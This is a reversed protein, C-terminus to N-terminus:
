FIEWDELNATEWEAQLYQLIAWVQFFELEGVGDEDNEPDFKGSSWEGDHEWSFRLVRVLFRAAHDLPAWDKKSKIESGAYKPQAFADNSACWRYLEACQVAAHQGHTPELFDRRYEQFFPKVYSGDLLRRASHVTSADYNLWVCLQDFSKKLAALRERPINKTPM